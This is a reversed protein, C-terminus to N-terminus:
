SLGWAKMFATEFNAYTAFLSANSGGVNTSDIVRTPIVWSQPKLNLMGRAMQDTVAWGMWDGPPFAADYKQQGGSRIQNLNADVGDHGLIPVSSFSALAPEADPIWGDAAIALYNTNPNSTLYSNVQQGFATSLTNLDVNQLSVTCGSCGKADSMTKALSHAFEVLIQNVSSYFTAVHANHCGSDALAWNAMQTGAAVFDATVHAYVGKYLPDNSSTDFMDVVTMSPDQALPASVDTPNIGFLVLGKAGAAVAKSVGSDWSQASGDGYIVTPQMGAAHAAQSFGNAVATSLSNAIITVLYVRKGSNAKMDFSAPTEPPVASRAKNVYAKATSVCAATQGSTASSAGGSGGTSTSSSGCAALAVAATMAAILAVLQFRVKTTTM